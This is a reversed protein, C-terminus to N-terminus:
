PLDVAALKWQLVGDRVLVFKVPGEVSDRRKVSIVFHNPGDYGADMDVDPALGPQAAPAGGKPPGEGQFMVALTEPRVMVDVMQELLAEGFVGGLAQFPFASQNTASTAMRAKLEAKLSQRVAPFDVYQSFTTADREEAAAKMSRLTLHPTFYVYAAAALAPLPLVSLALVVKRNM